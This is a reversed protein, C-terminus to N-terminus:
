KRKKATKKKKTTVPKNEGEVEKPPMEAVKETTEAVEAVVEKATTASPLVEFWDKRNPFKALFERAVDDTLNANTYHNGNHQLVVGRVLKANGNSM